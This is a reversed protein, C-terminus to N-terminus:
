KTKTGPTTGTGEREQRMEKILSLKFLQEARYLKAVKKVPLIKKFEDNYKRIIDLEKQRFNFENDIVKSVQEDTYDEFNIKAAMLETARGKRLSEVEARYKNYLPWFTQAEQPTLEMEKTLFGIRRADIDDKQEQVPQSVAIASTLCFLIVLAPLRRPFFHPLSTIM